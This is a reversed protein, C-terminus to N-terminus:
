PEHKEQNDCHSYLKPLFYIFLIMAGLSIIALIIGISSGSAISGLLSYSIVALVVITFVRGIALLNM